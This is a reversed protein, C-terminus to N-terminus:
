KMEDKWNPKRKELFASIGEKADDLLLNKVMTDGAFDYAKKIDDMELHHYFAKKGLKLVVSSKSAITKALVLTEEQISESSVVKNILGFDLAKTSNIFQGTLLM